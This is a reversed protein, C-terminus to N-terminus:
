YKLVILPSSGYGTPDTIKHGAPDPVKRVLDPDEVGLENSFFKFLM